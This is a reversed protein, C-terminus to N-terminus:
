AQVRSYLIGQQSHISTCWRTYGPGHVTSRPGHTGSKRSEIQLGRVREERSMVCTNTFFNFHKKSKQSFLKLNLATRYHATRACLLQRSHLHLQCIWPKILTFRARLERWSPIFPLDDSTIFHFEIQFRGPSSSLDNPQRLFHMMGQFKNIYAVLWKDCVSYFQSSKFRILVSSHLSSISTKLAM